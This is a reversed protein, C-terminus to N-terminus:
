GDVLAAERAARESSDVSRMKNKGPWYFAWPVTRQLRITLLLFGVFFERFWNAIRGTIIFRTATDMNWDLFQVVGDRRGLSLGQALYSLGFPQLQRGRLHAALADASHAGMPGAAYLSMRIPTGPEEAPMAADGAAFIEPHSLSRLARDVLIQGLENVRVGARRALDSVAFGGVWICVAFPIPGDATVAQRRELRTVETNQMLAIGLRSFAKRIHRQAGDSLNRAFSRRTVVTIKLNPFREALETSVEVGTNGGGVLLVRGRRAALGPLLRALETASRDDMTYAYERAGPTSGVDVHSGLAYILHDYRLEARQDLATQVSVTHRKPQLELVTGHEFRIRTKALMQALSREPLHQGSILQHNRVRENFTESANVLTIAVARRDTRRALRMAAMLGAYGAGLVVVQTTENTV